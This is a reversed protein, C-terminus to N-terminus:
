RYEKYLPSVLISVCDLEFSFPFWLWPRGVELLRQNFDRSERSGLNRGRLDRCYKGLERDGLASERDDPGRLTVPECMKIAVSQVATQALM